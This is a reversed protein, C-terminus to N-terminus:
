QFMKFNIVKHKILLCYLTKSDIFFLLIRILMISIKLFHYFSSVAASDRASLVRALLDCIVTTVELTKTRETWVTNLDM